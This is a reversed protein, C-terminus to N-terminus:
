SLQFHKHNDESRSPYHILSAMIETGCGTWSILDKVHYLSSVLLLFNALWLHASARLNSKNYLVYKGTKNSSKTIYSSSRSTHSPPLSYHIKFSPHLYPWNSTYNQFPLPFSFIRHSTQKIFKHAGFKMSIAIFRLLESAEYNALNYM